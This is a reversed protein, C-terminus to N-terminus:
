SERGAIPDPSEQLKAMLVAVTQDLRGPLHSAPDQRLEKLEPMAQLVEHPLKELLIQIDQQLSSMFDPDSIATKALNELDMLADASEEDLIRGSAGNPSQSAIRVKEIWIRNPNLAVAQAIVEQRLQSEQGLLERHASSQGTFTVRYPVDARRPAAIVTM